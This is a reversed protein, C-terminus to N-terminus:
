LHSIEIVVFGDLIHCNLKSSPTAEDLGKRGIGNPKSQCVQNAELSNSKSLLPPRAVMYNSWLCISPNPYQASYVLKGIMSFIRTNSFIEDEFTAERKGARKSRYSSRLGCIALMVLIIPLVSIRWAPKRAEQCRRLCSFSIRLGSLKVSQNHVRLKACSMYSTSISTIIRRNIQKSYTWTRGLQPLPHFVCHIYLKLMDVELTPYLKVTADLVKERMHKLWTIHKKKLDRLSWVDRREVLALLHLNALTKRDWNLDPTLLFGEEEGPPGHDRLIVDEQEARGEIINFVWNLRGEDRMKQM